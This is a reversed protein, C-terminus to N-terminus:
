PNLDLLASDMAFFRANRLLRTGSVVKKPHGKIMITVTSMNAKQDFPIEMLTKMTFILILGLNAQWHWAQPVQVRKLLNRPSPYKVNHKFECMLLLFRLTGNYLAPCIFM